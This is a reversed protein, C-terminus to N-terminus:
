NLIRIRFATALLRLTNYILSYSPVHFILSCAIPPTTQSSDSNSLQPHKNFVENDQVLFCLKLYIVDFIMIPLYYVTFIYLSLIIVSVEFPCYYVSAISLFDPDGLSFIRHVTLGSCANSSGNLVASYTSRNCSRLLYNSSDM